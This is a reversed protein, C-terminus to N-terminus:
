GVHRYLVRGAVTRCADPALSLVQRAGNAAYRRWSGASSRAAPYRLYALPMRTAAWRDKFRLLGPNDTDTRGLDLTTHGSACADQITKWFLLQVGGLHHLAADSCGYKYVTTDRHSITLMAAIARAESRAVRVKVASGFCAALNAFWGFPQPPLRHRRRTAVLLAYFSRLLEASNGEEYTLRERRAREIKRQVSDKSFSMLLQREGARLDIQHFWFRESPSFISALPTSQTRPRLEIYRWGRAPRAHQIHGAIEDVDTAADVLPECHDSFPLSVLRHGTLWSRIECFLM